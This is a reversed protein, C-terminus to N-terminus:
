GVGEVGEDDVAFDFVDAFGGAEESGAELAVGGGAGGLRRVSPDM